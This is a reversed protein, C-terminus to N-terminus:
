QMVEGQMARVTEVVKALPVDYSTYPPFGPVLVVVTYTAPETKNAVVVINIEDSQLSM